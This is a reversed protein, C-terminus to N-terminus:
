KILSLFAKEDLIKIGLKEAKDLKSGPEEGAVLYHTEGSVASSVKGGKNLIEEKAKERSMGALTGTIVFTKGTLPGIKRKEGKNVIVGNKIM